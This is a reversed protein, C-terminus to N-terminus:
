KLDGARVSRLTATITGVKVDSEIRVPIHPADEAFWIRLGRSDDRFIGGTEMTTEVIVTRFTGAKTELTEREIVKAEVTFVKGDAIVPFHHVAGPALDLERLHYIMALPDFVPRPVKVEDPTKDKRVRTAIKRAEDVSTRDDKVQGREELHKNYELTSLEGRTVVSEIEDRVKVILSTSAVSTIRCRKEDIPAVTMRATGGSIGLWTLDYDLTEGAVFADHARTALLLLLALVIM